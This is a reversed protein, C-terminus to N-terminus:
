LKIFRVTSTSHFSNPIGYFITSTLQGKNHQMKMYREKTMYRFNQSLAETLIKHINGFDRELLRRIGYALM